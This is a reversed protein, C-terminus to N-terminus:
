PSICRQKCRDIREVQEGFKSDLADLRASITALGELQANVSKLLELERMVRGEFEEMASIVQRSQANAKNPATAADV